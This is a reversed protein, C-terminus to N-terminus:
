ELMLPDYGEIQFPSVRWREDIPDYYAETVAEYIM